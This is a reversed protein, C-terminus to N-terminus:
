RVNEDRNCIKPSKSLSINQNFLIDQIGEMVKPQPKDTYRLIIKYGDIMVVESKKAQANKM